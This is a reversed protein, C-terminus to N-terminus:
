RSLFAPSTVRSWPPWLVRADSKAGGGGGAPARVAGNAPGERHKAMAGREHVGEVIVGDGDDLALRAAPLGRLHRLVQQFVRVLGVGGHVDDARLRPADRGDAHRLADRRFAALRPDADAGHSVGDPALGLRAVVRSQEEARRADQQTPQLAIGRERSHRVDQHVLHVLSRHLAIEQEHRELFEQASALAALARGLARSRVHLEAQHGGRHVPVHERPVEVARGAHGERTARKGHRRQVQLVGDRRGSVPDVPVRLPAM